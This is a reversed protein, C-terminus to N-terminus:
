LLLFLLSISRDKICNANAAELFDHKSLAKIIVVKRDDFGEARRPLDRGTQPHHLAYQAQEIFQGFAIRFPQQLTDARRHLPCLYIAITVFIVIIM